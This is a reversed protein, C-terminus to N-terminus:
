FQLPRPEAAGLAGGTGGCWPTDWGLGGAGGGALSVRIPSPHPHPISCGHTSLPVRRMAVSLPDGCIGRPPPVAQGERQPSVSAGRPVGAGVRWRTPPDPLARVAAGPWAKPSYRYLRPPAAPPQLLHKNWIPVARPSKWTYASATSWPQAAGAPCQGGRGVPGRAGASGQCVRHM